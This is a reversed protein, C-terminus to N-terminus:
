RTKPASPQRETPRLMTYNSLNAAPDDHGSERKHHDSESQHRPPRRGTRNMVGGAGAIDSRYSPENGRACVDVFDIPHSARGQVRRGQFPLDLDRLDQDGLPALTSVGAPM